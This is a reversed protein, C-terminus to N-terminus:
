QKDLPHELFPGINFSYLEIKKKSRNENEKPFKLEVYFHEFISTRSYHLSYSVSNEAM